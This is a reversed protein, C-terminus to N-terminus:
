PAVETGNISRRTVCSWHLCHPESVDRNVALTTGRVRTTVTWISNASTSAQTKALALEEALSAMEEDNNCVDVLFVFAARVHTSSSLTSNAGQYHYVALRM